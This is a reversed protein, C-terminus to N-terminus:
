PVSPLSTPITAPPRSPATAKFGSRITADTTAPRPPSSLVPRGPPKSPRASRAQTCSEYAPRGISLNIVRINYTSKLSMATNIADIVLADTGAGNQDLVRLNIINV